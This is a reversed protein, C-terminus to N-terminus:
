LTVSRYTDPAHTSHSIKFYILLICCCIVNKHWKTLEFEVAMGTSTGMGTM